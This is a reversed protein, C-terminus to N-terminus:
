IGFLFQGPTLNTMIRLPITTGDSVMLDKVEGEYSGDIQEKDQQSIYVVKVNVKEGIFKALQADISELLEVLNEDVVEHIDLETIEDDLILETDVGEMCELQEDTYDQTFETCPIEYLNIPLEIMNFTDIFKCVRNHICSNCDRLPFVQEENTM